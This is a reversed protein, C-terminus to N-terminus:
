FTKSVLQGDRLLLIAWITSSVTCVTGTSQVLYELLILIWKNQSIRKSITLRSAIEKTRNQKINICHFLEYLQVTKIYELFDVQIFWQSMWQSKTKKNLGEFYITAPKWVTSENSIRITNTSQNILSATTIGRWGLLSCCHWKWVSCDFCSSSGM